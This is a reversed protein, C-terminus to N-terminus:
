YIHYVCFVYLMLSFGVYMRYSFFRFLCLHSTELVHNLRATSPQTVSPQPLSLPPSLNNFINQTEKNGIDHQRLCGVRGRLMLIFVPENYRLTLM